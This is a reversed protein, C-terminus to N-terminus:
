QIAGWAEALRYKTAARISTDAQMSLDGSFYDLIGFLFEEILRCQGFSLPFLKYTNSAGSSVVAYKCLNIM